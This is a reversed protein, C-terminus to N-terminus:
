VRSTKRTKNKNSRINEEKTPTKKTQYVPTIVYPKGTFDAYAKRVSNWKQRCKINKMEEPSISTGPHLELDITIYYALQSDDEDKKMMKNAMYPYYSSKGYYPYPVYKAGGVAVISGPKEANPLKIISNPFYSKFTPYFFSSYESTNYIKSYIDNEIINMIQPQFTFKSKDESNRINMYYAAFITFLIYIHPLDHFSSSRNFIVKKNIVQKISINKNIVRTKYNFTILEYHSNNYYLFLYMKWKNYRNEFNAFPISINPNNKKDNTISIPIINLKLEYCLANIAIDNAWYNNSLIYKQLRSKEIVRFPTNYNEIEIPVSEVLDVLFNDNTKYTIRALEIYNENSIYDSQGSNILEEKLGNLSKSFITNLNEANIPAINELQEDVNIKNEIFNYVLLRLYRQTYLNAAVGYRGSIIRNEQNHYNYYNIADAIAIFFCDGGGSNQVTRIGDVSEKYATKSLNIVDTDKININTTTKLNNIISNKINKDSAKFISNILNYFKL